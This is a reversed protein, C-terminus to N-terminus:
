KMVNNYDQAVKLLVPIDVNGGTIITVVKGKMKKVKKSLLAAIGVAGGGEVILNEKYLAFAMSEAIEKESLLIVDDVYKQVMRFTYKNDLGIGGLLADALSDKEQIEVPHGAKLSYYMAPAVEPSIGIVRIGPNASKLVIATSSILGGSSLPVLLTGVDPCDELIEIGITGQGTIVFFDNIPNIVTAGLKEALQFSHNMAEDQSKGYQVPEGGLKRIAEVKSHSVRESLCVQAKIGLQGAIYSVGRGHSGSSFTIVGRKKEDATLNLIRNAAGRIKFAGTEQLNELKLYVPLGAYETLSPSIVLPTRRILPAISKRALYIDHVSISDPSEM